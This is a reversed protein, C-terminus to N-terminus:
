KSCLKVELFNVPLNDGILLTVLAQDPPISLYLLNLLCKRTLTDTVEQQM